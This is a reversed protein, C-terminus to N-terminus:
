FKRPDAAEVADVPFMMAVVVVFSLVRKGRVVSGGGGRPWHGSLAGAWFSSIEEPHRISCRRHDV